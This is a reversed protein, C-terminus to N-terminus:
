ILLRGIRTQRVIYTLALSTIITIVFGIWPLLYFGVISYLPTHKYLAILIFQQFIYVGFCMSAIRNIRNQKQKTYDFKLALLYTVFCGLSAYLPTIINTLVKNTLCCSILFIIIYTIALPIIINWKIKILPEKHIWMYTGLYFYFLHHLSSGFRLPISLTPLMALFLLILLKTGEKLKIQRIYYTFCFCWFLMPLFWMHGVGNLTDYAIGYKSLRPNFLFIYLLSFLISPFILRKLKSIMLSKINIDYREQQFAFLYGSLFIFCELMFSRSVKSIWWYSKIDPMNSIAEWEGSYMCFSHYLVLLVILLLRISVIEQLIKKNHKEKMDFEKKTPM